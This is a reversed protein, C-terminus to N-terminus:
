LAMMLVKCHVTGFEVNVVVHKLEICSFCTAKITIKLFLPNNHSSQFKYMTHLSSCMPTVLTLVTDCGLIICNEADGSHSGFREHKININM